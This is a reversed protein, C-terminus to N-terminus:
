IPQTTFCTISQSTLGGRFRFQLNCRSFQRKQVFTVMSLNDQTKHMIFDESMRLSEAQWRRDRQQVWQRCGSSALICFHNGKPRNELFPSGPLSPLHVTRPMPFTFIDIDVTQLEFEKKSHGHKTQYSSVNSTFRFLLKSATTSNAISSENSTLRMVPLYPKFFISIMNPYSDWSFPLM